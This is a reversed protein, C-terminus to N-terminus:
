AGVQRYRRRRRRLMAIAGAAGLAGVSVPEPVPTVAALGAGSM